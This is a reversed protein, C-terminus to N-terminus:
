LLLAPQVGSKQKQLLGTNRTCDLWQRCNDLLLSGGWLTTRLILFNDELGARSFLTPPARDFCIHCSPFCGHTVWSNSLAWGFLLTKRTNKRGSSNVVSVFCYQGCVHWKGRVLRVDGGMKQRQLKEIQNPIQPMQILENTPCREPLTALRHCHHM